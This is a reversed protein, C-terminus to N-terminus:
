LRSVSYTRAISRQRLGLGLKQKQEGVIGNSRRRGSAGLGRREEMQIAPVALVGGSGERRAMVEPEAETLRRRDQNGAIREFRCGGRWWPSGM